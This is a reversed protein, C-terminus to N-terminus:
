SSEIKIKDVKKPIKSEGIAKIKHTFESIRESFQKGESASIQNIQIREEEIGIMKLLEKLNELRLYANENGSIYHCDGLHCGAIFVGDAGELFAQLIFSKSMGGSCMVRIVRVNPPYQYRSVGALDAGAYSCWNCLFAVIRPEWGIEDHKVAEEIMPKIQANGFHSMSIASTPCEAFCTGCGKCVAKIVQAKKIDNSYLGMQKTIDILEIANYPCVEACRGCGICKEENVYSTIGETELIEKSLITMARAAASNAQAISESINAAARATGCLFIGDTAFDSPRLKVHAELFFNDENLPVKLLKALESNGEPAVIGASLVILDSNIKLEGVDPKNLLIQLQDGEKVVEPPKEEDFRIFLIGKERALNYYKEKFGYTRIDRFLIIVNIDPNIEKAKLANKIAEACCMRSCYPHEENRSGICQIMVISELERIKKENTFLIEELNSQTTIREDQSFLFEDDKPIYEEAGTAVIIIGHNFKKEENNKGYTIDTTFNGIYGSVSKINAKLFVTLLKHNNVKKILNGILKQVDNNELTQYISNAVGGLKESKEILYVDYGQEALNLAATMGAIGGGIVMGKHTVEVRQEKLPVLNRAKAVSMRVLDKAKETAEEPEHMHVWSCQDRINALDFLYKNLGAERITAQFLPEHTRPTCSAVIVRNLDHEKIKEKIITQTDASCTYLNRETYVVDPLKSAYEVIEPVDVVGGINIGCHCIFVGIRPPEGSIDIEEYDKKEAILTNRVDSLLVNVAGAAASAEIVTEPIDKPEKFTGCVYIGPRSTEIPNFNSTKCFGYENLEINLKKALTATNPNPQLGVSLVVMNFIEEIIQGEENEFRIKLDNSDHIEKIKSIRSRIYRVGYDEKAREIYKDFDKGYARIDMTFITPELTNLHEKAIVAEKTTYMCCVSSCYEHNIKKDRSGICQLFAIKKPHTNDSPRIVEGKFPGSANLIRELEISTIVNPYEGYGYINGIKPIYEDSGLALVVAGVNISITKDTLSHDVANAQCARVCEFCECCSGCNLCRLAEEISSEEDMGGSVENFNYIREEPLCITFENRDQCSFSEIDQINSSTIVDGVKYDPITEKLDSIDEGKLYKDIVIAAKNGTAIAEIAAGAGAVIEGGAFVGPINTEFSIKDTEVYGWKNINLKKKFASEILSCDPEQGISLILTDIKMKFESGEIAIPRRRGSEDPEGLKMEVCEIESLNDGKGSADRTPVTLFKFEIGEERAREIEERSAPMELESRRYIIIVKKAGLRISSRAADMAVDGGGVVGVIKDKLNPVNGSLNLEKLFEVGYIVDEIDKCEFDMKRSNHLGIAIFIAKFGQKKLDELTLDPGIPTNTKIVVGYKKIHEIDSELIEPPLRYDPIGLRLMGGAFPEKEFITVPYGRRALHYAVTLGAPGSGVIAVKEEKKDELFSIEEELNDRVYDAVFRKLGCINIPADIEARNCVSECFRPCIRGIVSPLPCRERILNLAEQYSKKSILAVYGQANVHAPCADKCPAIGQKDILVKFPVAQPFQLYIAKRDNLKQNFEDPVQVPCEQVCDGCGTCKDEYIYRTKKNIIANFNGAEGELNLVDAYTILEINPHRDVAVLKPALICMSCDNTPFTKDLQAMVGGISPEKDVLYVKM